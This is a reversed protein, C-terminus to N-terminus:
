PLELDLAYIDSNSRSVSVIPADEPSLGGFFYATVNSQPVRNLDMMREVKGTAVRVRSIAQGPGGFEEQYYIYEGGHSWYPKGLGMGKALPTWQRSHLDYLLLQERNRHAAIYRGDPSWVPRMLQASGELFRAQRDALDMVYIGAKVPTGVFSSCGFVLSKGDPSWSAGGSVYAAAPIAEPEGGASRIVYLMEPKGAEVAGFAIQADDPSWRPEYVRLRPPTLQRAESGDPRSRWLANQPYTVYAISRGDNSYAVWRGGVGPLYPLFQRHQRDYRMFERREQGAGMYIRKDDPAVVLSDLDMATSYLEVLPVHSAHLFGRDERMAWITTAPGHWSLFFYYKGSHTWAGARENHHEPGPNWGRLMPHLGRGDAAVEWLASQRKNDEVHFRLVDPRPAPAWRIQNVYGSTDALKRSDAGDGSAGYLGNGFGFVFRRGDRSWAGTHGFLKGLRRPPGGGTPVVWLPQEDEQAGAAVLLKSRDPSIDLVAPRVLAQAAPLPQAAGGEVPVQALRWTGGVREAFYVRAGDSAIPGGVEVHGTQTLQTVQSVRPALKEPGHRASVSLIVGEVLSACLVVGVAVRKRRITKSLRYAFSDSRAAVPLGDLHRRIDRALDGASAYRRAPEKRIAMRIMNDLDGALQPNLSVPAAPETQCVIQAIRGPTYEAIKQAKQGTLMEYLILGLAYVDVAPTVAEGRVQEPSAYDPTMVELGTQTVKEDEASADLLKAIGFDLLKPTGDGTMLINAPKLDRHVVLSKHAFEVAECVPLFLRLREPIDLTRQECWATISEGEIFEMVLYPVGEPTSGGDLLRAINPHTLRALIQREQRFRRLTNPSAAAARVLKIAVQQHFEADDRAARYVAGMGGHGVIAEVKYPGLRAGILRHDPDKDLTVAGALAAIAASATPLGYGSHLLLSAVERRVEVDPCEMELFAPREAPPLEAAREFLREVLSWQERNLKTM